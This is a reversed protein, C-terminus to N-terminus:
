DINNNYPRIYHQQLQEKVYALLEDTSDNVSKVSTNIIIMGLKEGDVKATELFKLMKTIFEPNNNHEDDGRKKIRTVLTNSDVM